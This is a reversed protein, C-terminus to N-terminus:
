HNFGRDEKWGHLLTYAPFKYTHLYFTQDKKQNILINIFFLQQLFQGEWAILINTFDIVQFANCHTRIYVWIPCNFNWDEQLREKPRLIM